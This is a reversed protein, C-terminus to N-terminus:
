WQYRALDVRGNQVEVGELELHIKQEEYGDFAFNPALRGSANVVRHCPVLGERVAKEAAEASECMPFEQPNKHLANGVARALGPNGMMAAIQGYTAVKGYPVKRVMEYVRENFTAKDM